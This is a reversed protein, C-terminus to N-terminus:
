FGAFECLNEYVERHMKIKVVELSADPDEMAMTYADAECHTVCGHDEGPIRVSWVDMLSANHHECNPHHNPMPKRLDICRVWLHCNNPCPWLTKM